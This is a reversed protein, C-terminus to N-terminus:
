PKDQELQINLTPARSLGSEPVISLSRAFGVQEANGSSFRRHRAAHRFDPSREPRTDDGSSSAPQQHSDPQASQLHTSEPRSLTRSLAKPSATLPPLGDFDQTPSRQPAIGSFTSDRRGTSPGFKSSTGTATLPNSSMSSILHVLDLCGVILSKYRSLRYGISHRGPEDRRKSKWDIRTMRTCMRQRELTKPCCSPGTLRHAISHSCATPLILRDEAFIFFFKRRGSTWPAQWSDHRCHGGVKGVSWVIWLIQKPDALIVVETWFWFFVHNLSTSERTITM